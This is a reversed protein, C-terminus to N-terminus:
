RNTQKNLARKKCSKNQWNKSIEYNTLCSIRFDNKTIKFLLLISSFVLFYCFFLINFSSFYSLPNWLKWDGDKKSPDVCNQGVRSINQCVRTELYMFFNPGFSQLKRQEEKLIKKANLSTETRFDTLLPAFLSWLKAM